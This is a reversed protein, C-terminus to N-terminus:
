RQFVMRRMIFSKLNFEAIYICFLSLSCYDERLKKTDTSLLFKLTTLTEKM